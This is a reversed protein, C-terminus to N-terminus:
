TEATAGPLRVMTVTLQMIGCPPTDFAVNAAAPAPQTATHATHARARAHTHTHQANSNTATYSCYIFFYVLDMRVTFTRTCNM